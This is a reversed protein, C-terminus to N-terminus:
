CTVRSSTDTTQCVYGFTHVNQSQSESCHYPACEMKVQTCVSVAHQKDPVDHYDPYFMWSKQLRWHTTSSGQQLWWRRLIYRNARIGQKMSWRRKTESKRWSGHRFKRWKGMRWQQKQLIQAFSQLSEFLECKKQCYSRWSGQESITRHAFKTKHEVDAYCTERYPCRQLGCFMAVPMPNELKRRCKENHGQTKEWQWFWHLLSSKLFEELDFEWLSMLKSLALM